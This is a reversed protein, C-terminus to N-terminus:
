KHPTHRLHHRHVVLVAFHKLVGPINPPRAKPRKRITNSELVHNRLLHSHRRILRHIRIIRIPHPNPERAQSRIEPKSTTPTLYLTQDTDPTLAKQGRASPSKRAPQSARKSQSDPRPEAAPQTAATTRKPWHTQAREGLTCPAPGFM